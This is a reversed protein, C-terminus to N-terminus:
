RAGGIARWFLHLWVLNAIMVAALGNAQWWRALLIRARQIRRELHTLRRLPTRTM